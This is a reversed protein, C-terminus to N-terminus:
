REQKPVRFLFPTPPSQVQKLVGFLFPTSAVAGTKTGWVPVISLTSDSTLKDLNAPIKDFTNTPMDDDKENLEFILRDM